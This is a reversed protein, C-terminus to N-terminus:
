DNSICVMHDHSRTTFAVQRDIDVALDLDLVPLTYWVIRKFKLVHAHM